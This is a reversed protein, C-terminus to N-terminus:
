FTGTLTVTGSWNENAAHSPDSAVPLTVTHETQQTTAPITVNAEWLHNNYNFETHGFPPAICPEGVGFFTGYSTARLRITWTRNPGPGSDSTVSIWADNPADPGTLTLRSNCTPYGTATYTFTGSGQMTGQNGVMYNGAKLPLSSPQSTSDWSVDWNLTSTWSRDPPFAANFTASPVTFRAKTIVPCVEPLGTVKVKAGDLGGTLALLGVRTAPSLDKTGGPPCGCGEAAICYYGDKVNKDDTSQGGNVRATGSETEVHVVRASGGFQYIESTWAAATAEVTQDVAVSLPQHLPGKTQAHTCSESRAPGWGPETRLPDTVYASAWHDLVDQDHGSAVASFAAKAAGEGFKKGIADKLHGLVDVGQAHMLTLLGFGRYSQSPLPETPNDIWEHYWGVPGSEYSAGPAYACGAFVAGGEGVWPLTFFNPLWGIGHQMLCHFVEHAIVYSRDAGSLGTGGPAKGNPGYLVVTCAKPDASKGVIKKVGIPMDDRPALTTAEVGVKPSPEYRVLVRPPTDGLGLKPSLFAAADNATRTDQELQTDASAKANKKAKPMGLVRALLATVAKRQKSSLKPAAHGIWQLALTGSVAGAPGQPTRVGDIKGFALAAAQLAMETTPGNAQADAVLGDFAPQAALAKIRAQTTALLKAIGGVRGTADVLTIEGVLMGDRWTMRAANKPAGSGLAKADQADLKLKGSRSQYRKAVKTSPALLARSVVTVPAADAIAVVGVAAPTGKPAKLAKVWPGANVTKATGGGVDATSVLGDAPTVDAARADSAAVLVLASVAVALPIRLM